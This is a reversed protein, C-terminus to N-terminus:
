SAKYVVTTHFEITTAGLENYLFLSSEGSDDRVGQLDSGNVRFRVTSVYVGMGSWDGEIIGGARQTVDSSPSAAYPLGSVGFGNASSTISNAQLKLHVWVLNGIKTYVGYQVTYVPSGAGNLTPTFTGEEYDDLANAAATDGNFTIGGTALVRMRETGNTAISIFGNEKNHIYANLDIKGLLFAQVNGSSDIRMRESPSGGVAITHFKMADGWSYLRSGVSDTLIAFAPSSTGANGATRTFYAASSGTNVEFKGAPTSSGIGVNGSSDIRM